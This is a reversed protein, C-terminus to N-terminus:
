STNNFRYTRVVKGSVAVATYDFPCVNLFYDEKYLILLLLWGFLVIQTFQTKSCPPRHEVSKFHPHAAQLVYFRKPKLKNLCKQPM